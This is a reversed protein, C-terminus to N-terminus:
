LWALARKKTFQVSPRMWKSTIQIKLVNSTYDDESGRATSFMTSQMVPNNLKAILEYGAANGLVLLVCDCDEPYLLSGAPLRSGHEASHTSARCTNM